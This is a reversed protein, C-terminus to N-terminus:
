GTAKFVLCDPTQTTMGDALLTNGMSGGCLMGFAIALVTMADTQHTPTLSLGGAILAMTLAPYHGIRIQNKRRGAMHQLQTSIAMMITQILHCRGASGTM